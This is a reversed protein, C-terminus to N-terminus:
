EAAAEEEEGGSASHEAAPEAEPQNAGVTEQQYSVNTQKMKMRATFIDGKPRTNVAVIGGDPHRQRKSGGTAAHAADYVAASDGGMALAAIPMQEMTDPLHRLRRFLGDVEEASPKTLGHGQRALHGGGHTSLLWGGM